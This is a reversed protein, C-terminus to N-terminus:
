SAPATGAPGRDYVNVVGRATFTGTGGIRQVQAGFTRSGSVSTWEGLVVIPPFWNGATIIQANDTRLASTDVLTSIAFTDNAVSGSPGGSSGGATYEVFIRRNSLMTVSSTTGITLATGASTTGTCAVSAIRGWPLNWPAQWGTTAGYYVLENMTDTELIRMGRYLNTTPRTTSTCLTVLRPQVSSGLFGEIERDRLEQYDDDQRRIYQFSTIDSL